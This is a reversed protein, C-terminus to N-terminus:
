KQRTEARILSDTAYPYKQFAKDIDKNLEDLQRNEVETDITFYPVYEKLVSDKEAEYVEKPKLIPFDFPAILTSHSWPKGKQFEYKFTGQKPVIIYIAGFAILLFIGYYFKRYLSLLKNEKTGM